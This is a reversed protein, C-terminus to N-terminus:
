ANGCFIADYYRRIVEDCLLRGHQIRGHAPAITTPQYEAFLNVWREEVEDLKARWLWNFKTGVISRITPVSPAGEGAIRVVPDNANAMLDAGFFDSTFLTKSNHDFLWGTGLIRVAPTVIELQDFGFLGLRERHKPRVTAIDQRRRKKLHVLGLPPLGNPSLVRVNPFTDVVAALNGSCDLENRTILVNLQREGVVAKLSELLSKEHAAVGTDILLASDDSILVYKNHPELGTVDPPLWSIRGDVAVLDSLALLNEGVKEIRSM